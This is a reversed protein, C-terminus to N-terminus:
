TLWVLVCLSTHEERLAEVMDYRELIKASM